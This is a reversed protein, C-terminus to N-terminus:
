NEIKLKILIIKGDYSNLVLQDGKPSWDPYMEFVDETDTIQFKKEGDSSVIFIDSSTVSLGNDKDVMYSIWRGDPSWKPYNAYGLDALINGNLDSVYTGKGAVTFLLKSNDPSISPWIYNGKGVPTIIKKTGSEILALKSKEIEVYPKEISSVEVKNNVSKPIFRQIRNNITYAIINNNLSKPTSLFRKDSAILQVAKTNVDMSKLSSYKRGNVYHDTRYYVINNQSVNFEYGAGDENNLKVLTNNELSLYYIGKYNAHTFFIKSGDPSFKPYYFEGENKSTVNHTELVSITQGIIMVSSTLLTIITLVLKKM